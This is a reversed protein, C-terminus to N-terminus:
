RGLFVPPRRELFSRRGESYDESLTLTPQIEAESSLVSELSGDLRGFVAKMSAVALPAMSMFHSAQAVAADVVSGSEVLHDVLGLHLAEDAKVLRGTLMLQRAKSGGVRQPLSWMLGADAMLGVKGFSACFQADKSALVVDCAAAISLGAGFAVGEVAAVVPKPGSVILRVLRHLLGVKELTKAPDHIPNDDMSSRLDGGSSFNSGAGRIVIARCADDKFLAEFSAIAAMRMEASLANRRAPATLTVVGVANDVQYTVTPEDM